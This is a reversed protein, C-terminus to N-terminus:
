QEVCRVHKAQKDHAMVICYVSCTCSVVELAILRRQALEGNENSSSIQESQPGKRKDWGSRHGSKINRSTSRKTRRFKKPNLTSCEAVNLSGIVTLANQPICEDISQKHRSNM